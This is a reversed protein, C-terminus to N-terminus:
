ENIYIDLEIDFSQIILWLVGDMRWRPETIGYPPNLIKHCNLDMMEYLITTVAKIVNEDEIFVVSIDGSRCYEQCKLIFKAIKSQVNSLTWYNVSWLTEKVNIWENDHKEGFRPKAIYSHLQFTTEFRSASQYYVSMTDVWTISIYWIM